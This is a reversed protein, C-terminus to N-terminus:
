IELLKQCNFLLYVFVENCEEKVFDLFESKECCFPYNKNDLKKFIIFKEDKLLDSVIFLTNLNGAPKSNRIVDYYNIGHNSTILIRDKQCSSAIKIHEKIPSFDFLPITNRNCEDALVDFTM